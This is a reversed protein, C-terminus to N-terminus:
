SDFAVAEDTKILTEWWRRADKRTWGCEEVCEGLRDCLERVTPPRDAPKKELCALVLRDLKPSVDYESYRSPPVPEASTHRAIIQMASAGTFVCRGTLM